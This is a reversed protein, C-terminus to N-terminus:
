DRRIKNVVEAGEEVIEDPRRHWRGNPVAAFQGERGAAVPLREVFERFSDETVMSGLTEDFGQFSMLRVVSSGLVDGVVAQDQKVLHPIRVLVVGGKSDKSPRDRGAACSATVHNQQPRGEAKPDARKALVSFHTPYGSVTSLVVCMGANMEIYAKLSSPWGERNGAMCEDLHILDDRLFDQWVDPWIQLAPLGSSWSM